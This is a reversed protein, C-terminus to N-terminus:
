PAVTFDDFRTPTGSYPTCFAGARGPQSEEPDDFALMWDRPEDKGDPWAKGQVKFKGDASKLVQLKFRTWAGSTWQYPVTARVEDVNVLQLQGTAPMLWLRYRTPGCAGLGFEPTRKGTASAQIRATVTCTTADKPGFLVGMNDLPNAALELVGNGDVTKVSMEGNIVTITEKPPEGEPLKDFNESFLPAPPTDGRLLATLCLLLAFGCAATCLRPHNM